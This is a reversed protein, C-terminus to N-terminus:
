SALVMRSKHYLIENALYRNLASYLLRHIKLQKLILACMFSSVNRMGKDNNWEIEVSGRSLQYGRVLNEEVLSNEWKKLRM